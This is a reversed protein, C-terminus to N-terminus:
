LKAYEEPHTSFYDNLTNEMREVVSKQFAEFEEKTLDELPRNNVFIRIGIEKRKAM